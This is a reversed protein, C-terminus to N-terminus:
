LEIEDWLEEETKERSGVMKDVILTPYMNRVLPISIRKFKVIDITPRPQPDPIDGALVPCYGRAKREEANM